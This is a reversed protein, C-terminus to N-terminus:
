GVTTAPRFQAQRDEDLIMRLRLGLSFGVHTQHVDEAYNQCMSEILESYFLRWSEVHRPEEREGTLAGIWLFTTWFVAALSVSFRRQSGALCPEKWPLHCCLFCEEGCLRSFINCRLDNCPFCRLASFASVAIALRLKSRTTSAHAARARKILVAVAKWSYEASSKV